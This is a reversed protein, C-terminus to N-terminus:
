ANSDAPTGKKIFFFQRQHHFGLAFLGQLELNLSRPFTDLGDVIEQIMREQTIAWGAKEKRIKALHHRNNRLLTPFVSAPTSSAAGYYRDTLTANVSGLADQQCKDLAAFLRGLHYAGEPRSPDLSVPIEKRSPHDNRILSARILSCRAAFAEGTPGEAHNRRVAASLVFPPIRRNQIAALYVESALNPPLNETKGQVALSRLLLWLPYAGTGKGYPKEIRVDDLFRQVSTAADRTSSDLFNRVISRGQAGSLLLTHFRSPDKIPAPRGSKPSELSLRVSDPDDGNLEFLWDLDAGNGANWFLAATDDSLRLNRRPLRHGNPHIPSPALLRNLATACTESALRSVPANKNGHLGYSEFAAKNFSVLSADGPNGGPVLKIAPHKDIPTCQSGTVLCTAEQLTVPVGRMTRWHTQIWPYLHIPDPGGPAYAVVLQGQVAKSREAKPLPSLFRNLLSTRFEQPLDLFELFVGLAEQEITGPPAATCAEQVHSRFRSLERQARAPDEDSPDVGFMFSMKDVLFYAPASSGSRKEQFPILFSPSELKKTQPNVELLSHISSARVDKQLVLRCPIEKRQFDLDKALGEDQALQYLAQLIM